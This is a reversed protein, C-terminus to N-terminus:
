GGVRSLMSQAQHDLELSFFTNDLPSIVKLPLGPLWTGCKMSMWIIFIVALMSLNDQCYTGKIHHSSFPVLTAKRKLDIVGKEPSFSIAQVLKSETATIFLM